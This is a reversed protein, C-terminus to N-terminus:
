FFFVVLRCSETSWNQWPFRRVSVTNVGADLMGESSWAFFFVPDVGADALFVPTFFLYM